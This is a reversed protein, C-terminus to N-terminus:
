LKNSKWRMRGRRPSPVRAVPGPIGSVTLTTGENPIKAAKKAARAAKLAAQKEQHDAFANLKAFLICIAELSLDHSGHGFWQM